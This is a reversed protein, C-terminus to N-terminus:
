AKAKIEIKNPPAKEVKPIEISLVGRFPEWGGFTRDFLRNREDEVRVLDRFPDWRVLTNM